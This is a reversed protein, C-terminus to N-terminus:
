RIKELMIAPCVKTVGKIAQLKKVFGALAASDNLWCEIMLMHDGTSTYLSSILGIRKLGEMVSIYDQPTADVGILAHVNLNMKRYDADITYKRIVKEKELLKIRKRVATESVGFKKALKVYSIRSNEKLLNILELNSFRVM